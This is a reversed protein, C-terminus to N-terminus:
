LGDPAGGVGAFGDGEQEGARLELPSSSAQILLNRGELRGSRMGLLRWFAAERPSPRRLILFLMSAMGLM